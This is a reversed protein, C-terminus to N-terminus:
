ITTTLKIPPPFRLVRLFGGVQRLDSVFKIVYHQLKAHKAFEDVMSVGDREAKLERIQSRVNLEGDSVPYIKKSL